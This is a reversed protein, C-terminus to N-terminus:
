LPLAQYFDAILDEVNELGVSVRILSDTIGQAARQEPSLGAHSTFAPRTILTEVGGLSPAQIPLKVKKLFSKTVAEGGAPEFALMGSYGSFYQKARAHSAHAELGPYYVSKCRGSHALWEALAVGNANHAAMRVALTKLGRHFLFAAHPDLSGGLHNLTHLVQGVLDRRGAVVGAVIDSHGNLYKTASHLILDFGMAAPQFNVPTAFTADIMSVLGHSRAFAVAAELDMVELLPNTMAEVYIAKTNPRLASQWSAPDEGDIWSVEIGWRPLDEAILSFTGGYLRSQALLHDGAKLVSLLATSIAAMGSATVVASETQELAALKEHLATHNPTNNMRIYKLDDYSCGEENEFTSSQFVPLSVAGAYRPVPEGAHVCLTNFAAHLSSM